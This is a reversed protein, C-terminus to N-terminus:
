ADPNRLLPKSILFNYLSFGAPVFLGKALFWINKCVEGERLLVQGKKIQEPKFGDILANELEAGLPSIQHLLQLLPSLLVAKDTPM